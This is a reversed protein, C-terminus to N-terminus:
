AKHSHIADESRIAGKRTRVGSASVTEVVVLQSTEVHDLDHSCACKPRTRSGGCVACMGADTVHGLSLVQGLTDYAAMARSGPRWFAARALSPLRDGTTPSYDAFEFADFARYLMAQRSRWLRGSSSLEPCFARADVVVQCAQRIPKSCRAYAPTTVRLRVDAKRLKHLWNTVQVPMSGSDSADSVGAVEDFLVDSHEIDLLDRYDTLPRYRPHDFGDRGLLPVTSYVLREGRRGISAIEFGAVCEPSVTRLTCAVCDMVHAQYGRHHRHSYVDCEWEQGDLVPLVAHVMALSKGSGNPGVFCVIGTADVLAWLRDSKVVKGLLSWLLSQVWSVFRQAYAKM